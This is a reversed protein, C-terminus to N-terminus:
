QIKSIRPKALAQGKREDVMLERRRSGSLPFAQFEARGASNMGDEIERDPHVQRVSTERNRTVSLNSRPRSREHIVYIQQKLFDVRGGWFDRDVGVKLCDRLEESDREDARDTDSVLGPL